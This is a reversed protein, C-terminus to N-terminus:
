DDGGFVDDIIADIDDTSLETDIQAYIDDLAGKITVLNTSDYLIDNATRNGIATVAESVTQAGSASSMSIDTGYVTINHNADQTKTNVTVGGVASAIADGTAKADAAEGQITLTPDIPVPVVDADRVSMSLQEAPEDDVTLNIEEVLEEPTSNVESM